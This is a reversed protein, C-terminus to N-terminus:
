DPPRGGSAEAMGGSAGLFRTPLRTEAVRGNIMEVRYAAATPRSTVVEVLANGRLHLAAGDDVAYGAPLGEAILRQYTPRRQAEGDYHPCATGEIFGLGEKLAELGGYSDTVGGQFWCLMGASLGGLVTGRDLADRLLVDLGHARWM